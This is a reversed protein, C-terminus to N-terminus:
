FLSLQENQKKTKPKYHELRQYIENLTILGGAYEIGNTTSMWEGTGGIGMAFSWTKGSLLQKIVYQNETHHFAEDIIRERETM